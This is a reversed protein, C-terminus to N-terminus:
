RDDPALEFPEPRAKWQHRCSLCVRKRTQAPASIGFLFVLLLTLWARKRWINDSECAPCTEWGKDSQQNLLTIAQAVDQEPVQLAIGGLVYINHWEVNAFHVGHVYTFIGHSNLFGAAIHASPTHYYHAVTRLSM